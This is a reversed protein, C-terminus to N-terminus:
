RGRGTHGRQLMSGVWLILSSREKGLGAFRTKSTWRSEGQLMTSRKVVISRNRDEKDLFSPPQQAVEADTRSGAEVIPATPPGAM